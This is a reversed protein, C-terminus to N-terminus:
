AFSAVSHLQLWPTLGQRVARALWVSLCSRAIPWVVADDAAVRQLPHHCLAFEVSLLLVAPVVVLRSLLLKRERQVTWRLIHNRHLHHIQCQKLPRCHIQLKASSRAQLRTGRRRLPVWAAPAPASHMKRECSKCHICTRENTAIPSSTCTNDHLSLVLPPHYHALTAANRTSLTTSQDAVLEFRSWCVNNM